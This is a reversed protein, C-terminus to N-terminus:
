VSNSKKDANRRKWDALFERLMGMLIVFLLPIITVLPNNTSIAPFFQLVANILYFINIVQTFQLM